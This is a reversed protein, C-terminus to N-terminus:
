AVAERCWFIFDTAAPQGGAAKVLSAIQGRHYWSHGFMQTLVDMVTNRFRGSDYSQYEFVRALDADTLRAYYAAWLQQIRDLDAAVEAVDTRYGSFQPAEGPLEGLRFLWVRRAVVLHDFIEVAKRYEPSTRRDPPVSELSRVVKDHADREYEYWRTFDTPTPM